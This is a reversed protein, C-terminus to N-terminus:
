GSGYAGAGYGGGEGQWWWEDFMEAAVGGDMGAGRDQSPLFVRTGYGVGGGTTGDDTYALQQQQQPQEQRQQQM